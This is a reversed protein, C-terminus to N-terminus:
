TTSSARCPGRHREAAGVAVRDEVRGRRHPGRRDLSRIRAAGARAASSPVAAPVGPTLDAPSGTVAEAAPAAPVPKLLLCPSPDYCSARESVIAVQEGEPDPAGRCARPGRRASAPARRFLPASVGRGDGVGHAPAGGAGDLATADADTAVSGNDVTEDIRVVLESVSHLWAFWPDDIVLQLLSASSGVRGRDMEYTARADDLLVKHLQLLALRLDRLRQRMGDSM